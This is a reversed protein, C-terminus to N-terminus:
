GVCPPLAPCPAHSTHSHDDDHLGCRITLGHPGADGDLYAPSTLGTKSIWNKIYKCEDVTLSFAVVVVVVLLLFLLLSRFGDVAFSFVMVLLLMFVLLLKNELRM